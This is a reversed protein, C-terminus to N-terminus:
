CQQLLHINSSYCIHLVVKKTKNVIWQSEVGMTTVVNLSPGCHQTSYHCLHWDRTEAVIEPLLLVLICIKYTELWKKLYRKESLLKECYVTLQVMHLCEASGPTSMRFFWTYVNQLLLCEKNSTSYLLKVSSNHKCYSNLTVIIEIRRNVSLM